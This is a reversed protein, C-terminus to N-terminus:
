SPGLRSKLSNLLNLAALPSLQDIDVERLLAAVVQEPPTFLTLQSPAASEPASGRALRPAGSPDYEHAELNALIEAAREIVPGPLGALR